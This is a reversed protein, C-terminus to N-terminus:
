TNELEEIRKNIKARPPIANDSVRRWSSVQVNIGKSTDLYEGLDLSTIVFSEDEEQLGSPAILSPGIRLSSKFWSPRIYCDTEPQNKKLLEIILSLMEAENYYPRMRLVKCSNVLRALHPKAQLLNMERQEPNWYARIGEFVATGYLFAHTMVSIKADEFKLFERGLFAYKHIVM